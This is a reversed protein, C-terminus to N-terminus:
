NSSGLGGQRINVTQDDDVLLYKMFIGQAIREERKLFVDEKGINYIVIQIHGENAQNNYYDSDIIAVQNMIVLNRKIASSSRIFIALFEDKNMKAKIYTNITQIQGKPINIDEAIFFDYGASAQSARRPIIGLHNIQEFKRNM